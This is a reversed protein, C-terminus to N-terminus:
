NSYIVFYDYDDARSIESTNMNTMNCLRHYKKVRERNYSGVLLKQYQNLWEQLKDKIMMWLKKPNKIEDSMVRHEQSEPTTFSDDHTTIGVEYDGDNHRFLILNYPVIQYEEILELGLDSLKNTDFESIESIVKKLQKENILIKM